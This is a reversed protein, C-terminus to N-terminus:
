HKPPTRDSSIGERYRRHIGCQTSQILSSNRDPRANPERRHSSDNLSPSNSNQKASADYVIRMKATTSDEKFVPFHPIYHVIEEHHNMDPVKEIFGM